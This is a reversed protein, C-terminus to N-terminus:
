RKILIGEDFQKACDSGVPWYGFLEDAPTTVDVTGDWNLPFWLPSKTRGGCLSCHSGLPDINVKIHMTISDGPKITM